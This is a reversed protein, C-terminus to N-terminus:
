HIMLQKKIQTRGDQPIRKESIDLNSIVKIRSIILNVVKKDLDANKVCTALIKKLENMDIYDEEM